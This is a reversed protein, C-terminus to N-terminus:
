SRSPTPRVLPMVIEIPKCRELATNLELRLGSLFGRVGRQARSSLSKYWALDGIDLKDITARRRYTEIMVTDIATM